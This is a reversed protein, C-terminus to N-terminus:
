GWEPSILRFISKQSYRLYKMFFGVAASRHMGVASSKFFDRLNM